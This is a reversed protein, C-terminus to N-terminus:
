RPLLLLLGVAAPMVAATAGAVRRPRAAWRAETLEFIGAIAVGAASLGSWFLLNVLYIAWARPGAGAVLGGLFALAGLGVLTALVLPGRGEAGPRGVASSPM